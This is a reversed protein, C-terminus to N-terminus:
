FVKVSLNQLLNAHGIIKVNSVGSCVWLVNIQWIEDPDSKPLGGFKVENEFEADQTPAV